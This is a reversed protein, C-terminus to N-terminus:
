VAILMAYAVLLKTVSALRFERDLPGHSGLLTGDAAVVAAVAHDVPWDAVARVSDMGCVTRPSTSPDHNPCGILALSRPVSGSIGPWNVAYRKRRRGWHTFELNPVAMLLAGTSVISAIRRFGVLWWFDCLFDHPSSSHGAGG